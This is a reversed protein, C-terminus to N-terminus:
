GQALKREVFELRDQGFFHEGDIFYSPAGLVGKVIAERCNRALELQAHESVAERVLKPADFGAKEALESIVRTDAIDRDDRWLAQLILCHLEDVDGREGRLVARQAVIVAGSPLEMPGDHHIPDALCPIKLFAAWRAADLQAYATRLPPRDDFPIGGIPVMTVSLKIPRHVLRRGYKKALAAIRAAGLYTFDSRISYYYFIEKM